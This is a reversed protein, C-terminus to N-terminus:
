TRLILNEWKNNSNNKDAHYIRGVPYRGTMCIWAAYHCPIVCPKKEEDKFTVYRSGDSKNYTGHSWRPIHHPPKPKWAFEGTDPNYMLKDGDTIYNTYKEQRLRMEEKIQERTLEVARKIHHAHLSAKIKDVLLKDDTLNCWRNDTKNGNLHYVPRWEGKVIAWAMQHCLYRHGKYNFGLGEVRSNDFDTEIITRGDRTLEEKYMKKMIVTGKFPVTNRGRTKVRYEFTGTDPDYMLLNRAQTPTLWASPARAKSRKKYKYPAAANIANIGMDRNAKTM